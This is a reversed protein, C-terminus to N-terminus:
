FHLSACMMSEIEVLVQKVLDPRNVRSDSCQLGLIVMKKAIELPWEGASADVFHGRRFDDEVFKRFGAKPSSGTVLELLLIGFSFVDYQATTDGTTLYEPDMYVFTGKPDNTYHHPTTRSDTRRLHRCLGFDSLKGTYNSDLLVNASKLDGHVIGHPKVSHLYILALCINSAICIRTKWTLAKSRQKNRLIDYLSGNPMLEYVLALAERCAGLLM